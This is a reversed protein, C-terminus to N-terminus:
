LLQHSGKVIAIMMMKKMMTMWEKSKVSVQWLTDKNRDAQSKGPFLWM